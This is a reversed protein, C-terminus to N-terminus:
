VAKMPNELGALFKTLARRASGGGLNCRARGTISEVVSPGSPSSGCCECHHTGENNCVVADDIAATSPGIATQRNVSRTEEFDLRDLVVLLNGVVTLLIWRCM